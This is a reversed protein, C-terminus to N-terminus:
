CGPLPGRNSSPLIFGTDTRVPAGLPSALHSLNGEVQQNRKKQNRSVADVQVPVVVVYAERTLGVTRYIEVVFVIHGGSPIVLAGICHEVPVVPWRDVDVVKVPFLPRGM